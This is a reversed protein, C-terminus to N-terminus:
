TPSSSNELWRYGLRLRRRDKGGTELTKKANGSFKKAASVGGRCRVSREAPGRARWVIATAAVRTEVGLKQLCVRVHQEVARRSIGLILAIEHDRKGEAM